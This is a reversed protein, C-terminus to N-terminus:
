RALIKVRSPKNDYHASSLWGRVWRAEFKEHLSVGLCSLPWLATYVQQVDNLSNPLPSIFINKYDM